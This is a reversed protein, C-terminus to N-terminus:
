PQRGLAVLTRRLRELAMPAVFGGGNWRDDMILAQRDLQTYFQRVFQQLGLQEMDSMYVYGVRGGSLRDVTERNHTIWAAERLPLEAKVPTVM